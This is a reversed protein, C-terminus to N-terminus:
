APVAGCAERRRPRPTATLASRQDDGVDVGWDRNWRGILAQGVGQRLRAPVGALVVRLMDDRTRQYSRIEGSDATYTAGDHRSLLVRGDAMGMVEYALVDNPRQESCGVVWTAENTVVQDVEDQRGTGDHM